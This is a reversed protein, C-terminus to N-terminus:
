EKKTKATSKSISVANGKFDIDDWTLAILEGLHFGGFLTMYFFVKQQLPIKQAELHRASPSGDKRTHGGHSITYEKDLQELFIQAEELTFHKIDSTDRDPKPPKIRCCPNTEILQWRVATNLTSSIIQHIRKITNAKYQKHHGNITYGQEMLKNYFAQIHLPQIRALKLHGLEPLILSNLSSECREFSTQQLQKEAYDKIWFAVFDKYLM